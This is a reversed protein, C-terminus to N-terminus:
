PTLLREFFVRYRQVVLRYQETDGNAPWSNLQDRRSGLATTLVGVVENVLGRTDEAAKRPDDVFRLQAERWRDRFDRASDETWLAAVPTVPDDGPRLETSEDLNTPEAERPLAAPEHDVPEVTAPDPQASDEVSPQYGAHTVGTDYDRDIDRPDVTQVEGHPVDGAVTDRPQEDHWAAEATQQDAATHQDTWAADATQQDAATHQDTWAADATQQETTQRDATQQDTWAADATQGDETQLDAHRLDERQAPVAARGEVTDAVHDRDDHHEREGRAFVRQLLSRDDDASPDQSPAESDTRM